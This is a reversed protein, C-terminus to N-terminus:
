VGKQYTPQYVRGNEEARGMRRVEESSTTPTSRSPDIKRTAMSSPGIPMRPDKRIARSNRSSGTKANDTVKRYPMAGRNRENVLHDAEVRLRKMASRGTSM